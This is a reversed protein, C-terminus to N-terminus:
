RTNKLKNKKLEYNKFNNIVFDLVEEKSKVNTNYKKSIISRISHVSAKEPLLKLEKFLFFKTCENFIALTIITKASSLGGKFFSAYDEVIVYNIDSLDKCLNSINEELDSIRESMNKTKKTPKIYGYSELVPNFSIKNYSIVSWGITTSSIDLSLVKFINM